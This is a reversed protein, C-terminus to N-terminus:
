NEALGDVVGLGFAGAFVVAAGIALIGGGSVAVSLGFAAGSAIPTLVSVVFRAKKCDDEAEQLRQNAQMLGQENELAMKKLSNIQEIKEKVITFMEKIDAKIQEDRERKTGQTKHTQGHMGNFSVAAM